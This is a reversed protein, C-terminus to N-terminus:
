MYAKCFFSLAYLVCRAQELSGSLKIKLHMRQRCVSPGFASTQTLGTIRLTSRQLTVIIAQKIDAFVLRIFTGLRWLCYVGTAILCAQRVDVTEPLIDFFSMPLASTHFRARRSSTAFQQASCAAVTQLCFAKRRAACPSSRLILTLGASGSPAFCVSSGTFANYTTRKLAKHM